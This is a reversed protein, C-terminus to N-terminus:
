LIPVLHLLFWHVQLMRLQKISVGLQPELLLQFVFCLLYFLLLFALPLLLDRFSLLPGILRLLWGGAGYMLSVEAILANVLPRPTGGRKRGRLPYVDVALTAPVAM